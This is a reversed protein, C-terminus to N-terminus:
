REPVDFHQVRHNLSDAVYLRLDGAFVGLPNTFTGLRDGYYGFDDLFGGETDFLKLAHLTADAVILLGEACTVGAPHELYEEGASGSCDPGEDLLYTYFYLRGAEDEPASTVVLYAADGTSGTMAVGVPNDIVHGEADYLVRGGPRAIGDRDLLYLEPDHEADNVDVVFVAAAAPWYLMDAPHDLGNPAGFTGAYSGDEPSFADLRGSLPDAVVLDGLEPFYVVTTPFYPTDADSDTDSLDRVWVPPAELDAADYAKLKCGAPDVVYVYGLAAVVDSPSDLQHDRSGFSGFRGTIRLYDSYVSEAVLSLTKTEGPELDVTGAATYAIAGDEYVDVEVFRDVGPECDLSGSATNGDIDLEYWRDADFDPATIRVRVRDVDLGAPPSPLELDLAVRGPEGGVGTLECAGLVVVVAPVALFALPRKM